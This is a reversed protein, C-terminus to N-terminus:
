YSELSMFNSDLVELHEQNRYENGTLITIFLEHIVNQTSGLQLIKLNDVQSLRKSNNSM